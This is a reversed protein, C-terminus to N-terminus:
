RKHQVKKRIACGIAAWLFAAVVFAVVAPVMGAEQAIEVCALAVACGAMIATNSM